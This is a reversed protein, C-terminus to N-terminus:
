LIVGGELQPPPQSPKAESPVVKVEIPQTQIVKGKYEVNVPGLTYTGVATPALTYSLTLATRM